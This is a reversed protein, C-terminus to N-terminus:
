QKPPPALPVPALPVPVLAGTAPRAPGRKPFVVVEDPQALNLMARAREDLMDPDTHDPRLMAVRREMEARIMATEQRTQDAEAVRDQLRMYAFLGREGEIAHYAFYGFIGIGLVPGVAYRLRKKLEGLLAM